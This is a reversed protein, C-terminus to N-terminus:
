TSPTSEGNRNLAFYQEIYLAMGTGWDTENRIKDIGFLSMRIGNTQVPGQRDGLGTYYQSSPESDAHLLGSTPETSYSSVASPKESSPRESPPHVPSSALATKPEISHSPGASHKISPVLSPHGSSSESPRHSPSSSPNVAARVIGFSLDINTEPGRMRFCITKHLTDDTNSEAVRLVDVDSMTTAEHGLPLQIIVFYNDLALNEFSFYGDPEATTRTTAALEGDCSFLWVMVHGMGYDNGDYAGNDNADFFAHGGIVRASSPPPPAAASPREETVEDPPDGSGLAYQASTPEVEPLEADAGTSTSLASIDQEGFVPRDVPATQWEAEQISTKQHIVFHQAYSSVGDSSPYQATTTMPRTNM